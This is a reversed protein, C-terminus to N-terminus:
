HRYGATSSDAIDALMYIINSLALAVFWAFATHVLCCSLFVSHVAVSMVSPGGFFFRRVGVHM